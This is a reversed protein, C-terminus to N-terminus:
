INQVFGIFFLIALPGFVKTIEQVKLINIIGMSAFVVAVITLGLTILNFLLKKEAM